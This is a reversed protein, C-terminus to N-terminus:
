LLTALTFSNNITLLPLSIVWVIKYAETVAATFGICSKHRQIPLLTVLVIQNAETIIVFSSNSSAAVIGM